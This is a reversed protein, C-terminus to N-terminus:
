NRNKEYKKTQIKRITAIIDNVFRKRLNNKYTYIKAMNTEMFRQVNMLKMGNEIVKLDFNTIFRNTLVFFNCTSIYFENKTFYIEPLIDSEIHNKDEIDLRVYYITKAKASSKNAKAKYRIIEM